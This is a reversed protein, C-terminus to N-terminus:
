AGSQDLKARSRQLSGASKRRVAKTGDKSKPKLPKPPMNLMCKALEDRRRATEEDSYHDDDPRKSNMLLIAHGLFLRLRWVALVVLKVLHNTKADRLPRINIFQYEINEVLTDAGQLL